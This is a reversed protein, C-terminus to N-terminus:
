RQIQFEGSVATLYLAGVVRQNNDSSAALATNIATRTTQSMRGFLLANDAANILMTSNSAIGVFPQLAPNIPYQNMMSYFFNARNVADSASYIQFEPGFLGGGGPIRFTPSYHGFVSPADLLSENMYSLLYNFQSAPGPNMNLARSLAIISQMPTRLRGFSADPSDNRAEPHLIIARVVAKLDGRVGLGNNAFVASIDAIFAPSPNSTVLARILRTAIFPGVNPHNFLIDLSDDLDKHISQGGPLTVGLITKPQANHRSPMPLMPGPYYSYNGGPPPVNAANAYTWGTLARALHQVDSQTYTPIPQDNGDLQVSGDPNLQVLGISFLQMIERPYNENAAGSAGSNALDLFHGMSGDITIEKLLDRYNGFANKSLIQMWPIIMNGNTNKNSSIVVIEGLAYIVRQRLQDQGSFANGFFADIAASRNSNVPPLPSESLNFQADLFGAMGQQKAAAVLAPTAGFTTQDLFRGWTIASPDQITVTAAATKTNDAVSTASVTVIGTPPVNDPATFLGADSIIGTGTSGGALGNVKWVVTQDASNGVTAQFQKTTAVAVSTASPSVNITVAPPPPPPPPPAAGSVTVFLSTSVAGPGPNVVTLSVSGPSAATGTATLQETNIFTTPLSAGNWKVVAGNVFRTGNVTISFPGVPVSSPTVSTPWPIQNRVTIYTFGSVTPDEVSTATIKVSWGPPTTSPATYYGTADVSGHTVSWTVANNMAGTVTATFQRVGDIPMMVGKPNVVVTVAPAPTAFAVAFPVLLFTLVLKRISTFNV